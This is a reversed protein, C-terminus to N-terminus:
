NFTPLLIAYGYIDNEILSFILCTDFLM